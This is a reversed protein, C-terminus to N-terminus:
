PCDRHDRQSEVVLAVQPEVLLRHRRRVRVFDQHTDGGDPEAAGIQVPEVFAGDAVDDQGLREDETVLEDAHDLCPRAHTLPNREVGRDRAALTGTRRRRRFRQTAQRNAPFEISPASRERSAQGSRRV